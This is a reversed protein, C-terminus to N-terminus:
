PACPDPDCSSGSHWIGEGFCDPDLCEVQFVNEVCDVGFNCCAGSTLNVGLTATGGQAVAQLDQAGITCELAPNDWPERLGGCVVQNDAPTGVATTTGYFMILSNSEEVVLIHYVGDVVVVYIQYQLGTETYDDTPCPPEGTCDGDYSYERVLLGRCLGDSFYFCQSCPTGPGYLGFVGNLAAPSQILMMKCTTGDGQYVFRPVLPLNRAECEAQTEVAVCGQGVTDCCAGKGECPPGEDCVVPSDYLVSPFCCFELGEFTVSPCTGCPSPDCDTGVGYFTGGAESCAAATTITCNDDEDCCAGTTGGCCCDDSLAVKGGVTLPKGNLLRVKAM